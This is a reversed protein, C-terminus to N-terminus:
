NAPLPPSGSEAHAALRPFAVRIRLGPALNAAEVTAHHLEAIRKVIALGLGSGHAEVNSGRYFRDFVRALEDEAIGPGNDQVNLCVTDDRSEVTLEVRGGPATYRIANDLLNSLIIAVADAEGRICAPQQGSQQVALDVQRAEAALAFDAAANQALPWLDLPPLKQEHGAPPQSHAQPSAPEQRALTLLQQVLRAARALGAKLDAFAAAREADSGAREALQMQLKLATLPTRLEHAADAVFSRQADIARDLRALLDNLADTLPLIEDPLGASSVPALTAADRSEVEAAVRRVPALGRRVTLVILGAAFPVLLLLPWVTKIAFQAAVARRASMPQAIQIVAGGHQMSYVRWDNHPTRMNSFGLVARQPLETQEHSYYLRLGSNDWIQIVIDEQPLFDGARGSVVYGFFESPLAAAMQKMQYDFLQNAEERAQVYLVGAIALIGLSLGASLWILLTSRISKM